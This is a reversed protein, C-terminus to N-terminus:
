PRAARWGSRRITRVGGGHRQAVSPPRAPRPSARGCRVPTASHLPRCHVILDEARAPHHRRGPDWRGPVLARTVQGGVAAVRDRMNTLGGGNMATGPAFGAGDDSVEFRLKGASERVRVSISRAGDAHKSANQLAELCCFYVASETGPPYRGVGDCDVKTPLACRRGAAVLAEALGADVLLPPYIGRALSRVDDLVDTVRTGAGRLQEVAREPDSEIMGAILDLKIGLTVLQQQAGDHLDREIRRREEDAAASIRARSDAVDQLSSDLATALRQNEVSAIACAAIADLFKRQGYLMQGHVVAVRNEGSEYKAVVQSSGAAPLQATSGAGDVWQDPDGAAEPDGYLIRVSDGVASRSLLSDLTGPGLDARLGGTVEELTKAEVMRWQILGVLFAISMAPIGFAAMWGAVETFSSDPYTGAMLQYVAVAVLRVIAIALVPVLIPRVLPTERKIRLALISVAAIFLGIALVDRVDEVGGLFAPESNTLMFANTPCGETCTTLPFPLFYQESVFATPLYLTLVLLCIGLVM